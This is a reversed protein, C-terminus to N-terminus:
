RYKKQWIKLKDHLGNFLYEHMLTYFINFFNRTLHLRCSLKNIESFWDFDHKKRVRDTESKLVLGTFIYAELLFNYKIQSLYTM